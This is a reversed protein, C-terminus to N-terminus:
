KGYAYFPMAELLGDRVRVNQILDSKKKAPKHGARKKKGESHWVQEPTKKHIPTM